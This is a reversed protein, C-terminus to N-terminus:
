KTQDIESGKRKVRLDGMSERIGTNASNRTCIFITVKVNRDYWLLTKKNRTRKRTSVQIKKIVCGNCCVGEVIMCKNERRVSMGTDAACEIKGAPINEYESSPAGLSNVNNEFSKVNMVVSAGCNNEGSLGM